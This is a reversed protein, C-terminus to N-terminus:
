LLLLKKLIGLLEKYPMQTAGAAVLPLLAAAGVPVLASRDILLTSMKRTAEFQKANAARFSAVDLGDVHEAVEDLLHDSVWGSNEAGQHAYLLHVTQWLKGQRGAAFAFRHLMALGDFRHHYPKDGVEVKAPGTRLLTGTLWAPVTGRVPLGEVSTESALTTFGLHYPPRNM